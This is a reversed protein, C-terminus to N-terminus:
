KHTGYGLMWFLHREGKSFPDQRQAKLNNANRWLILVHVAIVLCARKKPCNVTPKNEDPNVETVTTAFSSGKMRSKSQLKFRNSTNLVVGRQPQSAGEIDGFIPDSLIRVHRELFSVMDSFHARDNSAEWIDHAKARWWERLKFPLRSIVVKMNAPIDLEQMFHLEEMVNCCGRLYLAYAQLARVDETKITLWSLAKEIYATAIKYENGFHEKLLGKAVIYGREPSM